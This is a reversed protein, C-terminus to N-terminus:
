CPRGSAGCSHNSCLLPAFRILGLVLPLRRVHEAQLATNAVSAPLSWHGVNPISPAQESRRLHHDLALAFQLLHDRRVPSGAANQAISAPPTVSQHLVGVAIPCAEVSGSRSPACLATIRHQLSRLFAAHSWDLDGLEATRHVASWASKTSVPRCAANRPEAQATTAPVARRARNSSRPASAHDDGPHRGVFRYAKTCQTSIVRHLAIVAPCASRCGAGEVVIARVVSKM